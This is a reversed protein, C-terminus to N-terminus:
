NYINSVTIQSQRPLPTVAPTITISSTVKGTARSLVGNMLGQTRNEQQPTSPSAPRVPSAVAHVYSSGLHIHIKNDETTIVSSNSSNSRQFQWPPQRDPSVRFIAHKACVERPEPSRGQEPSSASGAAALVQIPSITREPTLSGGSEPTQARAFAAVSAPSMGREPSGLGEASPQPKVSSISANQLITVRPKPAGCNPIVATSTYSHPSDTSPSTIELTATNQAHDPTVKIHLPQGPVHSLVVDAPLGFNGNPKSPVSGNQAHGEKFNVWPTWLKRTVPCPAPPGGQFSLLADEDSPEGQDESEERLRGNPVAARAPPILSRYDPPENDGAERQVGRSLLLPDSVRRGNRGPRLSKSFHKNRELEKSLSETERGSDRSRDEQQSLKRQLVLRGGQPHCALAEATMHAGGQGKLAELGRSLHGSRAEEEQLRKFLWQEQSPETKAALKYKALEMKVHKLEKTLFQTRDKESVYKQELIEYEDETKMLDDEIAKMDKLRLRLREVEQSLEKIKNNEQHLATTSKSPDQSRRNKLSDKEVGELSQLRTKLTNVKSLLDQGREEEVKLKSRLDDREKAVRSMRDEVDARAKVAKRTEEMLKEAAAAARNQEAQLRDETQKLKQGMASREDVLMVTLTKLKTFDEQLSLETKELRSEVAELERIREKLSELEQSQLRAAGRERELSCQLSCCEQRSRSLADELQELSAVRRGLEELEAALGRGRAAEEGLRGRLDGCQEELRRLEQDKGGLERVRRRLEEAEAELGSDGHEGRSIADCLGQLEEEARQLARGAEELEDMQRSLAALKQRLQRNQGDEHTLKAM